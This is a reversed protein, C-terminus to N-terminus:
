ELTTESWPAWENQDPSYKGFIFAPKNYNGLYNNNFNQYGYSAGSSGEPNVWADTAAQSRFVQVGTQKWAEHVGSQGEDFGGEVAIKGSIKGDGKAKDFMEMYEKIPVNGQGVALHDDGYGFNDAMHINGIVGSDVLKKTQELAWKQFKKDRDEPSEGEKYRFYKKWMNLHGTDFTAKITENAVKMGEKLNKVKHQDTLKQAMNKRSEQIIKLLEEPHAGYREPFLNEIALHIKNAKPNKKLLTQNRQYAEMALDTYSEKAKELAFHSVTDVNKDRLKEFESRFQSYVSQKFAETQELRTDVDGFKVKGQYLTSIEHTKLDDSSSYKKFLKKAKEEGLQDIINEFDDEDLIGGQRGMREDTSVYITNGKALKEKAETYLEKLENYESFQRDLDSKQRNFSTGLNARRDNLFRYRNAIELIEYQKIEKKGNILKIPDKNIKEVEKRFENNQEYLEAAYHRISDFEQVQTPIAIKENALEPITTMRQFDVAAYVKDQGRIVSDQIAKETSRDIALFISEKEEDESRKFDEGLAQGQLPRVFEGAHFTIPGGQEIDAAFEIAKKIEDIGQKRAEDRFSFSQEDFGSMGTIGPHAHTHITAKNIKALEKLAQRREKGIKGFDTGQGGGGMAAPSFEIHGAGARLEAQFGQIPNAYNGMMMAGIGYDSTKFNKTKALSKTHEHFNKPKKISDLESWLKNWEKDVNNESAM